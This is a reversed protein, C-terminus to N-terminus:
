MGLKWKMNNVKEQGNSEMDEGNKCDAGFALLNLTVSGKGLM